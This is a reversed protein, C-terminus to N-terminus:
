PAPSAKYGAADIVALVDAPGLITDVEVTRAQLDCTIQAGADADLLSEEIKATCHGCSMEPVNYTAM